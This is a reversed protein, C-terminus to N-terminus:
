APKELVFATKGDSRVVVTHAFEWAGPAKWLGKGCGVCLLIIVM